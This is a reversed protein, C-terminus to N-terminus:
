RARVYVIRPDNWRAHQHCQVSRHYPVGNSPQRHYHCWGVQAGLAFSTVAIGFYPLGSQWPRWQRRTEEYRPRRRDFKNSFPQRKRFDTEGFGQRMPPRETGMPPYVVPPRRRRVVDSQARAEQWSTMVPGNDLPVADVDSRFGRRSYPETFSDQGTSRLGPRYGSPREDMRGEVDPLRRPRFGAPADGLNTGNKFQYPVYGAPPGLKVPPASQKGTPPYLLPDVTQATATVGGVVITSLAILGSIASRTLAQAKVHRATSTCGARDEILPRGNSGDFGIRINM